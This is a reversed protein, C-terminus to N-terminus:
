RCKILSLSIPWTSVYHMMREKDREREIYINYINHIYIYTYGNAAFTHWFLFIFTCHMSLICLALSSILLHACCALCACRACCACCACCACRACCAQLVALVALLALAAPLSLLSLGVLVAFVVVLCAILLSLLM